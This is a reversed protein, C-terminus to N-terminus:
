AYPIDDKENFAAASALVYADILQEEIGHNNIFKEYGQVAKQLELSAM